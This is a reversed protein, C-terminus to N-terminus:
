RIAQLSRARKIRSISLDARAPQLFSAISSELQNSKDLDTAANGRDAFLLGCTMLSMCAVLGLVRSPRRM